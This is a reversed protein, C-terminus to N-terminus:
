AATAGQRGATCNMLMMYKIKMIMVFQNATLFAEICLLYVIIMVIM